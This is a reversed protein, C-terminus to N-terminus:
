GTRRFALLQRVRMMAPIGGRIMYPLPAEGGFMPSSNPLTIWQDALQRSYLVNLTEFIGLLFSIRTLKDHDLIKKQGNKLRYYAGNAIGGLLQRGVKDRLRWPEVMKFFAAAASTSLRARVEKNSLDPGADDRFSIPGRMMSRM